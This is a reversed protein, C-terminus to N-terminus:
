RAEEPLSPSPRKWQMSQRNPDFLHFWCDDSIPFSQLFGVPEEEFLTLNERLTIQPSVRTMGLENHFNSEVRKRSIDIGNATQNITLRRGDMVMHLVRDIKETTDIAPRGFRSDDEFGGELDSM